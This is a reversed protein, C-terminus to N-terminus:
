LTAPLHNLVSFPGVRIARTIARTVFKKSSRV